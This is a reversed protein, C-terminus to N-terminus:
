RSHLFRMSFHLSQRKELNNLISIGPLMERWFETLFCIIRHVKSDVVHWDKKLCILQASVCERIQMQVYLPCYPQGLERTFHCIKRQLVLM